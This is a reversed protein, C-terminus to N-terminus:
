EPRGLGLAWATWSLLIRRARYPPQDLARDIDPNRLLPELALQAYFQGDYSASPPYDIHPIARLAPLEYAHDQPLGLLATFGYGPHYFRAVSALFVGALAVAIARFIWRSRGALPM